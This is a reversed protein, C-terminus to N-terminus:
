PGHVFTDHLRDADLPRCSFDVRNEARVSAPRDMGLDLARRETSGDTQAQGVVPPAARVRCPDDACVSFGSGFRHLLTRGSRSDRAGHGDYVTCSFVEDLVFAPM